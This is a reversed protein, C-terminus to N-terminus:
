NGLLSEIGVFLVGLFVVFFAVVFFVVLFDVEFVVFFFYNDKRESYGTKL